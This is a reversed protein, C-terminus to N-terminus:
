VFGCRLSHMREQLSPRKPDAKDMDALRAELKRMEALGAKAERSADFAKEAAEEGMMAHCENLKLAVSPPM